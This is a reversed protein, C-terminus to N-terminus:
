LHGRRPLIWLSRQDPYTAHNDVLPARQQNSAAALGQKPFPRNWASRQLQALRQLLAYRAFQQFFGTERYAHNLKDFDEVPNVHLSGRPRVLPLFTWSEVIHDNVIQTFANRTVSHRSAIHAINSERTLLLQRFELQGLRSGPNQFLCEGHFSLSPVSLWTPNAFFLDNHRTLRLAATPM